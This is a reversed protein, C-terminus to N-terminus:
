VINRKGFILSGIRVITSGCEIAIKYDGSMGMSIEKFSEEDKFFSQKIKKFLENLKTFEQKVVSKDETFTAMGMLGVIRINEMNKYENSNLLNEVDSDSLGFKTTEQAIHLQLLCDIIRENQKARKNVEGLLQLSDISHILSVFPAIYKVKNKQVHGIAHWEIDKPLNEHKRVLEQIKNEGFIKYGSKYAELILEEPKTKSVSVLKVGEPITKKIKIINETITM